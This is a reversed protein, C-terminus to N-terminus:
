SVIYWNRPMSAFFLLNPINQWCHWGDTAEPSASIWGLFAERIWVQWKNVDYNQRYRWNPSDPFSDRLWVELINNEITIGVTNQWPKPSIPVSSGYWQFINPCQYSKQPWKQQTYQWEHIEFIHPCQGRCGFYNPVNRIALHGWFAAKATDNLVLRPPPPPPPPPDLKM